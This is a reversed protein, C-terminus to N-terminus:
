GGFIWIIFRRMSSCVLRCPLFVSKICQKLGIKKTSKLQFFNNEVLMLGNELPEYNNRFIEYVVSDLVSVKKKQRFCLEYFLITEPHFPLKLEAYHEINDFLQALCLMNDFSSIIMQDTFPHENCRFLIGEIANKYYDVFFNNSSALFNKNIIGGGTPINIKDMDIESCDLDEYFALDPRLLIVGDYKINSKICYEKLLKIAGSINYLLSCVREKQIIRDYLTEINKASEIFFNFDYDYLLFDKLYSSYKEKLNEETVLSGSLDQQWMKDQNNKKFENIEVDKPIVSVGCHKPAFIFLDAENPKLVHTILANSTIKYTRLFGYMCVAYKKM